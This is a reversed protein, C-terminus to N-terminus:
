SLARAKLQASSGNFKNQDIPDSSYQWFTYDNWGSPLTGVRQSYRAVWLPVTKGFGHGDGVCHNWWSTSTYIVPWRGTRAKYTNLFAKIWARMAAKSKGYCAAGYPNWELDVAGPLTKGDGSWMGGNSVFHGAQVIGSSRDPLAFHYAGRIMGVDYSGNYQQAFYPNQYGTGETAKVYAFRKGKEWWYRWNVERQWGSVDIGQVGRQAQQRSPQKGRDDSGEDGTGPKGDPGEVRRIQSGMPTDNDRVYEAVAGEANRAAGAAAAVSKGGEAAPDRPVADGGGAGDGAPGPSEETRDTRQGGSGAGAASSGTDSGREGTRAGSSSERGGKERIPIGTSSPEPRGVPSAGPPETSSDVAANVVGAGSHVGTPAGSSVPPTKEAHNSPPASSARQTPAPPASGAVVATRDAVGVLAHVGVLSLVFVSLVIAVARVRGYRRRSAMANM